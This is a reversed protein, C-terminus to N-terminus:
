RTAERRLRKAPRDDSPGARSGSLPSSSGERRSEAVSGAPARRAVKGVKAGPAPRTSTRPASELEKAMRELIARASARGEEPTLLEADPGFSLVQRVLAELNRVTLTATIEGEGTRAIRCGPLLKKALPALAGTFRVQAERPPESWFDWPQQRAFERIDFDRPIAYDPRAPNKEDLKLARVRNVYFVRLDNRLHCHGVFLWIGRRWAFGYVDVERKVTEQRAATYYTLTVRKRRRVAEGLVDLYKARRGAPMTDGHYVNLTPVQPPMPATGGAQLKRLGAELDDRWPNNTMRAAAQGVTWLVAAEEATLKLDPLYYHRRDIVYGKPQDADGDVHQIPVGAQQLAQKDRTWAKDIAQANGSYAGKMAERIQEFSVPESQALLWATLRLLREEPKM